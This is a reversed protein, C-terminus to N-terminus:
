PLHGEVITMITTVDNDSGADPTTRVFFAPRQGDPITYRVLGQDNIHAAASAQRTVEGQTDNAHGTENGIRPQITTGTSTATALTSQFHTITGKKPLDEGAANGWSWEDTTGLDAEVIELHIHRRGDVFEETKTITASYAM